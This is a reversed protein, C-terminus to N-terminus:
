HVAVLTLSPARPPCTWSTIPSTVGSLIVGLASGMPLSVRSPHLLDEPSPIAVRPSGSPVRPFLSTKSSWPQLSPLSLPHLPPDQPLQHGLSPLVWFFTEGTGDENVM